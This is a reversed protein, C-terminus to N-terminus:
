WWSWHSNVLDHHSSSIHMLIKLRMTSYYQSIQKQMFSPVALSNQAYVKRHTVSDGATGHASRKRKRSHSAFQIENAEKFKKQSEQIAIWYNYPPTRSAKRKEECHSAYYYRCILIAPRNVQIDDEVYRPKAGLKGCQVPM